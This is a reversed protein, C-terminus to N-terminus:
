YLNGKRSPNFYGPDNQYVEEDDISNIHTIPGGGGMSGGNLQRLCTFPLPLSHKGANDIHLRIM